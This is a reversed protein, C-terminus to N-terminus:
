PHIKNTLLPNFLDPFSTPRPPQLHLVPDAGLCGLILMTGIYFDGPSRVLAM